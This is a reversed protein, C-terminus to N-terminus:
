TLCAKMFKEGSVSGLTLPTVFQAGGATLVCRVDAGAAKLQRILEPTKYAAIGGGIILLVRKQALLGHM